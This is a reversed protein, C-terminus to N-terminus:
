VGNTMNGSTNETKYDNNIQKQAGLLNRAIM